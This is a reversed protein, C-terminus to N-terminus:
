AVHLRKALHELLAVDPKALVVCEFRRGVGGSSCTSDRPAPLRLPRARPVNVLVRTHRSTREQLGCLRGPAPSSDDNEPTHTLPRRATPRRAPSLIYAAISRRPLPPTGHPLR